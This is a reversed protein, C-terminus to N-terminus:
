LSFYTPCVTCVFNWPEEEQIQRMREEQIRRLREDEQIERMREEQIQRM